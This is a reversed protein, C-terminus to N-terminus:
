AKSTTNLFDDGCGLDDLNEGINDQLLKIIKCKVNLDIIWKSKIKKFSILDTYISKKKKKGTSTTRAGNKSSQRQEM